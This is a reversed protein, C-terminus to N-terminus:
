ARRILDLELCRSVSHYRGDDLQRSRRRGCKRLTVHPRSGRTVSSRVHYEREELQISQCVKVEVYWGECKV